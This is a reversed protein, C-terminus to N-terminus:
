SVWIKIVAVILLIAALGWVTSSIYRIAPAKEKFVVTEVPTEITRIITDPLCKAQISITDYTRIIKLQLKEKAVEITDVSRTVITDYHEVGKTIVTDTITIYETKIIDPSKKIARKLHWQASCSPLLLLLVLILIRKM